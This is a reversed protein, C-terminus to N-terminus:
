SSKLIELEIVVALHDSPIKCSPLATFETVQEHTPMPISRQFKFKNSEYFIHDIVDHFHLAYTTYAYNSYTSLEIQTKYDIKKTIKAYDENYQGHNKDTLLFGTCLLHFALSTLSANFDGSWIISVNNKQQEYLQKIEKIRELAIMTQFCRIADAYPRFYLHTNCILLVENSEERRELALIQLVTSRELLHTNIEPVLSCRRRIFELHKADRFYEGIRIDHSGIATFRETRYFIASGERVSHSKIKMDGLYGYQKLVLSLEREYFSTDCEQLSIIDAHYGLIEKLILAKRYDHQLYDDSCFPYLKEAAHDTSAYGNALINYSVLRLNNSDIPLYDKTLKHRTNMPLDLPCPIICIKSISEAQIGERLSNNRPVCVLRVFKNVHEDHFTCFLGHHIHTWQTHDNITKIDDTVYWDFLSSEYEGYDIEVFATTITNTLIQEPFRFRIVVPANYEVNYFQENISLRQCNRWAQQNTQNGDIPQDNNIDFLEVVILQKETNSTVGMLEKQHRKKSKNEKIMANEINAILRHITKSVPEDMSRLLNFQRSINTSPIEYVIQILIKTSNEKDFVFCTRNNSTM